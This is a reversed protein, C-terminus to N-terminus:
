GAKAQTQRPRLARIYVLALMFMLLFLVNAIAAGYGVDLNSFTERWSLYNLLVTSDAPSGKTLVYILDFVKLAWISQLVVSIVITTKLGPLTVHVFQQWANAGDLRAAKYLYSPINQLGALILLAIFPVAKWVDALLIMNLALWPTGLWIINEEILGLGFLAQNLIGYNANYIWKWLVANAVPSLAWPVLLVIRFFAPRGLPHNLMLAVSLALIIVAIVEVVTFYISRFLAERFIPKTFLDAYNAIGNFEFSLGDGGFRVRLFSLVLSAVIPYALVTLLVIVAPATFWVGLRYRNRNYNNTQM